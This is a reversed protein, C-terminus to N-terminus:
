ARTPDPVSRSRACRVRARGGRRGRGGGAPARDPGPDAARARRAAGRHRAPLHVPRRGDPDRVRHRGRLGIRPHDVRRDAGDRAARCPGAARGHLRVAPQGTPLREIEIDRWGIGRVGLGLVKSVAEKAAWRGAMTEPRDRVYRREAETLVRRSFRPGFRELAARIREVKIIDIGLETTGAPVLGAAPAIDRTPDGTMRTARSSRSRSPWTARSTSTRAARSRSTTRSCSSRSSRWSRASRRTPTRAGLLRRRRLARHGRRGRDRGRHGPRRARPGGHRQQDAQRLGVLPDRGRRAPVRRRAALHPRAQARGGRLGRRPRLQGGQAQARGRARGPYTAGRGVFMFGRSNVYRRALDPTTAAAGDLARAAAAPLARLAAGLALEDAEALAAARRPSPRRWSSWPRSRPSSRRRPPSRSRRARGAPVPGRGGRPHDGLRGHQHGRHGPLRARARAPDARDHRGDRGVPHGRHRADARRAAAPRLPVRLRRQGPGAARDLGPDRRGRHAVRLLRQRLRDLEVRTVTACSTRAPRGAGRGRDPRSPRGARRDVPQAIRAARPDGQAHLARLRGERRGRAVLRDDDGPTRARRRRRRHHHRGM